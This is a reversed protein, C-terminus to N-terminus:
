STAELRHPCLLASLAREYGKMLREQIFYSRPPASATANELRLRQWASNHTGNVKLAEVKGQEYLLTTVGTAPTLYM